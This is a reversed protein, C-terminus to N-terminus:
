SKEVKYEFEPGCWTPCGEYPSQRLTVEGFVNISPRARRVEYETALVYFSPVKDIHYLFTQGTGDKIAIETGEFMLQSRRPTGDAHILRSPNKKYEELTFPKNM